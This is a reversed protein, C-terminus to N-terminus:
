AETKSTRKQKRSKAAFNIQVKGGARQLNPDDLDSIASGMNLRNAAYRILNVVSKAHEKPVTVAKASGVWAGKPRDTKKEASAKLHNEFPNPGTSNARGARIPTETDTVELSTFDLAPATKKTPAKKAPAKTPTAKTPTTM